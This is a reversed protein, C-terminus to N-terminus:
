TSKKVALDIYKDLIKRDDQLSCDWDCDALQERILPMVSSLRQILIDKFSYRSSVQLYSAKLEKNEKELRKIYAKLVELDDCTQCYSLDLM